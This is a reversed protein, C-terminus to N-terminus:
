AIIYIFIFIVGMGIFCIQM